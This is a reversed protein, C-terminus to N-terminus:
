RTGTTSAKLILIKSAFIFILFVMVIISVVSWILYTKKFMEHKKRIADQMTSIEFMLNTIQSRVEATELALVNEMDRMSAKYATMQKALTCIDDNIEAQQQGASVGGAVSSLIGTIAFMAIMAEGM